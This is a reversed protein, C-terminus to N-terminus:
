INGRNEDDRGGCKQNRLESTEVVRINLIRQPINLPFISYYCFGSTTSRKAVSKTSGPMPIRNKALIKEDDYEYEYEFTGTPLFRMTKCGVLFALWGL